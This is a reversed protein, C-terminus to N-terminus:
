PLHLNPAAGINLPGLYVNGGRLDIPLDLTEGDAFFMGAAAVIQTRTEAAMTAGFIQELMRDLATRWNVLRLQLAGEPIGSHDVTVDGALLFETAGLTGSIKKLSVRTMKPRAESLAAKDLPRDLDIEIDGQVHNNGTTNPFDPTNLGLARLNIKYSQPAAEIDHIAAFVEDFQAFSATDRDITVGTGHLNSRRVAGNQRLNVVLSAQLKENRIRYETQPTFLFHENPFAAIIHQLKYSLSLTQFFPAEWGLGSQTDAIFVDSLMVDFRNPFGTVELDTYNASWGRDDQAAFYAIYAQAVARSGVVWYGAWLSATIIILALLRKM